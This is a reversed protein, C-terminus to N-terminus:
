DGGNHYTRYAEEVRAWIDVLENFFAALLRLEMSASADAVARLMEVTDGGGSM